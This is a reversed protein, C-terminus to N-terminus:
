RLSAVLSFYDGDRVIPKNIPRAALHREGGHPANESMIAVGFTMGEVHEGLDHENAYRGASLNSDFGVVQSASDVKRTRVM